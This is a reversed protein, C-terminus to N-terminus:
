SVKLQFYGLNAMVVTDFQTPKLSTGLVFQLGRPPSGSAEDFCHGELLIYELSFLAVINSSSQEMKINDLDYEAFVNEVMWADPTDVSLTL